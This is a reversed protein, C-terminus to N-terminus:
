NEIQRINANFLYISFPTDHSRYEELTLRKIYM